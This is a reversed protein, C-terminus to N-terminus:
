LVGHREREVNVYRVKSSRSFAVIVVFMVQVVSSLDLLSLMFLLTLLLLKETRECLCYEPSSLLNKVYRYGSDM